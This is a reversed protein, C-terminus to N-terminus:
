KLNNLTNYISELKASDEMGFLYYKQDNTLILLFATDYPDLCLQASKGIDKVNFKGKYMHPFNTGVTKSAEPMETLYSVAYIDDLPITYELDTHYAELVTETLVVTPETFEEKVM